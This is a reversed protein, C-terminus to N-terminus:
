GLQTQQEDEKNVTRYVTQPRGIKPKVQGVVQLTPSDSQLARKIKSHISVRSIAGNLDETLQKATFDGEPWELKFPPRGPKNKTDKHIIM